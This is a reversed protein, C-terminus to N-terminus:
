RLTLASSQHIRTLPEGLGSFLSKYIKTVGSAHRQAINLFRYMVCVVNSRLLVEGKMCPTVEGRHEGANEKVKIFLAAPLKM